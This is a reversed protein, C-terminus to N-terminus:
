QNSHDHGFNLSYDSEFYAKVREADESNFFRYVMNDEELFPFERTHPGTGDFFIVSDVVAEDNQLYRSKNFAEASEEDTPLSGGYLIVNKGSQSSTMDHRYVAPTLRDQGGRSRAMCKIYQFHGIIIENGM